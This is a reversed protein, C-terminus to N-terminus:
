TGSRLLKGVAYKKEEKAKRKLIKILNLWKEKVEPKQIHAANAKTISIVSVVSYGEIEEEVEDEDELRM